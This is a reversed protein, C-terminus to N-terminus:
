RWELRLAGAPTAVWLRGNEFAIDTIPGAPIDYPITLYRWTDNRTDWEAIGNTGGIWIRDGHAHLASARGVAQLAGNRPHETWGEENYSILGRDTFAAVTNLTAAVAYARSASYSLHFDTGARFFVGNDAAVWLTDNRATLQHITMVPLDARTYDGGPDIVGLTGRTGVWVGNGLVVLTRADGDIVRQWRENVLRYVGDAAAAYMENGRAALDYVRQQPGDAVRAEFHRWRQLTSDSRAVGTRQSAGASGFYINGAADLAIAGVGRSISGFVYNESSLNRTDLFALNGGFLAAWFTGNRDAPTIATVPWRRAFADRGIFSRMVGLAPDQDDGSRQLRRRVDAPLDAGSRREWRQMTLSWLYLTQAETVLWIGRERPDYAIRAPGDHIPYGDEVTSPPLWRKFTLDYVELGNDTSVYVHRHDTAVGRANLFSSILVREDPQWFGHQADVRAAGFLLSLAILLLRM